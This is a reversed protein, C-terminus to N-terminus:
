SKLKRKILIVSIFSIIGILTFLSYGPIQQEPQITTRKVVIVENFGIIIM